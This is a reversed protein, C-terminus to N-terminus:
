QCLMESFVQIVELQQPSLKESFMPMFLTNSPEMNIRSIVEGNMIKHDSYHQIIQQVLSCDSQEQVLELILLHIQLVM